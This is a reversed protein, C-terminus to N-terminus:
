PRNDEGYDACLRWLLVQAHHLDQRCSISIVDIQNAFNELKTPDLFPKCSDGILLMKLKVDYQLNEFAMTPSMRNLRFHKSASYFRWSDTCRTFDLAKHPNLSRVQLEWFNFSLTLNEPIALVM